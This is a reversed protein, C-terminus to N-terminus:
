GSYSDKMDVVIGWEVLAAISFSEGAGTRLRWAVPRRSGQRFIKVTIKPAQPSKDIMDHCALDISHRDLRIEERRGDKAWFSGVGGPASVSGSDIAEPIHYDISREMGDPGWLAESMNSSGLDTTQELRRETHRHIDWEAEVVAQGTERVITWETKSSM